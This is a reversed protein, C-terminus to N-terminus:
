FHFRSEREFNFTTKKRTDSYIGMINEGSESVFNDGFYRQM